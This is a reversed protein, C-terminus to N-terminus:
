RKQLRFPMLQQAQARHDTFIAQMKTKQDPTLNLSDAIKQPGMMRGMGKGMMGQGGQACCGMCGPNAGAMGQRGGMRGRPAAIVTGVVFAVVIAVIAM